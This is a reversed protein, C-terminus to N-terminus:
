CCLRCRVCPLSERCARLMLRRRRPARRACAVSATGCEYRREVIEHGDIARVQLGASPGNWSKLPLNFVALVRRGEFSRVFALVPECTDFLEIDGTCHRCRRAGSASPARPMSRPRPTTSGPGRGGIGSAYRCGAAVATRYHFGRARRQDVADAHPLRRPGQFNALVVHRLSRASAEYPVDAEGLGLEEGQYLCVSGRLSCVLAVLQSALARASGARGLAVVARQVDHNSMAWCPWGDRMTAELREVTARIYGATFDDTLLEFSYGMHLRQDTVYERWRRSRIRRRSRASPRRRRSLQDLLARLDQLFALNEPQTNNHYHYQFAYPNDASFGRGIRLAEPKPPNDRLQPDHFCFNIADLRLGDVGQDLWFRVNDLTAPACTPITSISTPSRPLSTTCTLVPRAAAGVALGRRRLDVALQEPPSGDPQADAWVYWDAKPNDRSERSETFWDHEISTHSLVQDIMVKIGLGHAKALLRDFDDLTGFLPDVDRYDAIDYGFDAMPSKFFPSVWIADVGLSAVYDLKDVIGPLDGVGDGDSDMFSRPYIQYIM